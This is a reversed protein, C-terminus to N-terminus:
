PHHAFPRLELVPDGPHRQLGSKTTSLFLHLNKSGHETDVPLASGTGVHPAGGGRSVLRVTARRGPIDEHRQAVGIDASWGSPLLLDDAEFAPRQEPHAPPVACAMRWIHPLADASRTPVAAAASIDPWPRLGADLEGQRCRSDHGGDLSHGGPGR